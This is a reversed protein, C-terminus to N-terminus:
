VCFSLKYMFINAKIYEKHDFIVYAFESYRNLSDSKRPSSIAFILLNKNQKKASIGLYRGIQTLLVYRVKPLSRRALNSEMRHMPEGVVSFDNQYQCNESPLSSAGNNLTTAHQRYKTLHVARTQLRDLVDM